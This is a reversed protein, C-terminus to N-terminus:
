FDLGAAFALRVLEAVSQVETKEFVRARHFEVTRPSLDLRRAVVKNAAGTILERMVESERPTLRDIRERADARAQEDEARTRDTELARDIAKFLAETEWPKEIFDFAGARMAAVALEVDGHATIMIVPPAAPLAALAEIVDLGTKDPMRYDVLACGRAPEGLRAILEDGSAFTEYPMRRAELLAALADRVGDDDDAVFVRQDIEAETM